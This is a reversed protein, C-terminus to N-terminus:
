MHHLCPVHQDKFGTSGLAPLTSLEPAPRPAAQSSDSPAAHPAPPFPRQGLQWPAASKQPRARAQAPWVGASLVMCPATPGRHIQPGRLAM